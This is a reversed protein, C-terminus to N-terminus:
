NNCGVKILDYELIFTKAAKEEESINWVRDAVREYKGYKGQLEHDESKGLLATLEDSEQPGDNEIHLSPINQSTESKGDRVESAGERRIVNMEVDNQRGAETKKGSEHLDLCSCLLTRCSKKEPGNVEGWPHFARYFLLNGLCSVVWLGLIIVPPWIIWNQNLCQIVNNDHGIIIPSM